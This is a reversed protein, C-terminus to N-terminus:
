KHSQNYLRAANLIYNEPDRKYKLRQKKLNRSIAQRSDGLLNLLSKRNNIPYYKGNKLMYYSDQPIFKRELASQVIREEIIKRRHILITLAGTEMHHYFGPKLVRDQDPDHKIFLQDGFNFRQVRESLIRIPVVKPTVVILEQLYTDYKFTIDNYTIDDYRISGKQWDESYAFPHEEIRLVPYYLRGTYIPLSQNESAFYFKSVSDPIKLMAVGTTDLNQGSVYLSPLFFVTFIIGRM